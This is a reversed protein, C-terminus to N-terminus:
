EIASVKKYEMSLGMFGDREDYDIDLQSCPNLKLVEILLQRLEEPTLEIREIVQKEAKMTNRRISDIGSTSLKLFTKTGVSGVSM